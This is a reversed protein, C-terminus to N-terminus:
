GNDDKKLGALFARGEETDLDCRLCRRAERVAMEESYGLEIECFNGVRDQVSLKPMAVAAFQAIEHETMEVPRLYETPRTRAYTVHWEIGRVYHDISEAAIKGDAIAEIATSPGRVADGCAFVGPRSTMLNGAAVKVTGWDTLEVIGRIFDVRPRESIASILSDFKEVFESGPIPVPRRRGSRDYGSLEMKQVEVLLRGNDPLIRKPAALLVIKVGEELAGNIEEYFATMENRTRRYYITVECGLRRAVRSADIASNGGGIICVRKGPDVKQGRHISNLFRMAPLVRPHDDGPIGLGISEHAGVTVLVAEHGQRFIDDLTLDQGVETKTKIDIGARLMRAIDSELVSRPLRYEPVGLWLMGGCRDTAEYVTVAYGKLRLYYAATLGAPGAGVVAVRRGTDPLPPPSEIEIKNERAWDVVFRKIARIGIPDGIESARCMIRECPHHCIRSVTAPMPNDEAVVRLADRFKKRAVYSIYLQAQTNIPCTHQCPSSIIEKCVVAPCRKQAIHAEYEDRFHKTTSLVPNAATQGLGCMSAAKVVNGLDELLEIDGPRGEGETIRKVIAYMQAIGERCSACKGCSEGKLFELFYKAVDVMCTREDMVIMGGSGMISGAEALREYDVPLNILGLPICGGSPGGTQIAKFRRARAIGGGIDLIEDLRIGMPVEILGTNNVKGVLSFVKTGKSKETGIRAFWEHGRGIIVPVNSWTEVNNINTPKGRLGSEAPYPPRLRPEPPRGEISAILSTEEGCVFAGAGQCISLDFSFDNGLINAGLLGCARADSIARRLRDIALPYETRVYIYGASAGIAYAGILMGEIVSHPDGEIISRDMYAGPDGEDANCILFKTDGASKRCLDWKMGTLFGAGGRGRLGSAKVGAIVDEPNMGQLVKSLSSYGGRAIYEGIDEPNIYGCNRLAIKFQKRFFPIDGYRPIAKTDGGMAGNTLVAKEDLVILYDEDARWSAKDVPLTGRALHNLIEGAKEPDLRTFTVRPAGPVLVDILPEQQCFGICGVPIVALERGARTANSALLDFIPGAGTAIGCTAMGVTVRVKDRPYLSAM